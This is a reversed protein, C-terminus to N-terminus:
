QEQSEQSTLRIVPPTRIETATAQVYQEFTEQTVIEAKEAKQTPTKVGQAEQAGLGVEENFPPEDRRDVSDVTEQTPIEAQETALASTFRYFVEDYQDLKMLLITNGAESDLFTDFGDVPYTVGFGM